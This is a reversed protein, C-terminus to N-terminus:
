CRARALLSPAHQEHSARGRRVADDALTARERCRGGEGPAGIPERRPIVRLAEAANRALVSGARKRM